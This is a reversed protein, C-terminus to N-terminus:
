DQKSRFNRAKARNGCIEMSCWARSGNRSHDFYAFRCTEAQCLKVRGIRGQISLVVTAALAAEAVTESRLCVGDDECSPILSVAPLQPRGGTVLSRLADRASRAEALDGPVLGHADAWRRLGAAGALEDTGEEVDLTNLFDVLLEAEGTDNRVVKSENRGDTMYGNYANSWNCLM